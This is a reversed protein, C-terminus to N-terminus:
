DAQGVKMPLRVRRPGAEDANRVELVPDIIVIHDYRNSNGADTTVFTLFQDDSSLEVDIPVGEVNRAFDLKEYRPEGGVFIRLDASPPPNSNAWEPNHEKSNELNVLKGTFRNIEGLHEKRIAKLDFTIGVSAHIGIGGLRSRMLRETIVPYTKAGWSDSTRDWVTSDKVARRAWIPGWTYYGCNKPLVITGGLTDVQLPEGFQNPVFTGDIFPHWDASHFLRDGHRTGPGLSNNWPRRDWQGTLPDIAAALRM